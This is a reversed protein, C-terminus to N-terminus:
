KKATISKKSRNDVWTPRQQGKTNTKAAETGTKEGEKENPNPPSNLLDYRKTREKSNDQMKEQDIRQKTEGRNKAEM